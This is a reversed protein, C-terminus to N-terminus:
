CMLGLLWWVILLLYLVKLIVGAQEDYLVRRWLKGVMGVMFRIRVFPMYSALPNIAENSGCYPCYYARPDVPRLCNPCLPKAQGMEAQEDPEGVAGNGCGVNEGSLKEM